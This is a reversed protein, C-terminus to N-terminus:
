ELYILNYPTEQYVYYNLWNSFLLSAHGRWKVVPTKTPDDNPYYNKPVNRDIGNAIDRDYEKKLTLPDYESHGTVFIQRGKKASVIYIGSEDSESIIELENIKDIDSKRIETFRSHPVYFEDDFESLLKTNQKTIKHKFVGFMKNDLKHKQLGYHYHLGAQAGWCIHLTSYVNRVSWQMIEELEEWYDVEEFALNEIPAGTIIMGDFRLDKIEDFTNYFKILHEESINKSAHSKPHLLVVDIQLPSNGLLRLLQTETDIKTPMLNLIIIKLPRIDQHFACDETITFINEKNLTKFAPLNDPIKIPM